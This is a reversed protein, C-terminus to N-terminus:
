RREDRIRERVVIQIPNGLFGYEDRITRQMYRTWSPSLKGTTFLVFTPPAVSAQTAYLIKVTKNAVRPAPTKQQADQILRNLVGTSARLDRAEIVPAIAETLKGMGRKTTASTRILPAYDIFHLREKMSLEAAEAAVSDELLDWKNLAIIAGVGADAVQEAIRQDQSTAGQFADVVLIAIDAREIASRTRSASFIEVGQTKARRRMGATDIFRVKQGDVEAITDITDRTTGAEHHVISREEGVLRNFISSKGVNPRGVLAISPVETPILEEGPPPLLDVIRDLLDGSGRGHTSSVMMPEGLGLNWLESADIEVADNDVKNAVVILPADIRRLKIALALEDSTVGTAADIVFLVVDADELTKMARAAVKGTITADPRMTAEVIGGTDSLIFDRGAWNVDTDLRDRTMGEVEGVISGRRGALRNVLTSKGVNPRGIVAVRPPM